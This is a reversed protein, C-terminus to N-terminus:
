KTADLQSYHVDSLSKMNEAAQEATIDRQPNAFMEYGVMFKKVTASRLLPPYFSMHFHWEPHERGDTPAQHIGASYPFSTNFINDYKITLQKLIEAYSLKESESLLGINALKRKPLIMTEYPWVAWYPLLAVFHENEVIIREDLKLEQVLYDELISRGHKDWYAQLNGTKKLVEQPIKNQAWIQGHPHPNSCGMIAGKNEFIQVHDIGEKAGLERYEKQWLSIVDTIDPVSMLPLTLSHNPSFCVVKCIGSESEAHLLGNDYTEEKVDPLLASFDNIFSYPKKYSPNFEGGMRENTPCLYCSPDYEPLDTTASKETKGQWPRKTRHPSVLVWEGTLINLRRHPNDNFSNTM